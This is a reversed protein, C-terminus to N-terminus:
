DVSFREFKVIKGPALRQDVIAQMDSLNDSKYTNYYTIVQDKELNLYNNGVFSTNCGFLLEHVPWLM